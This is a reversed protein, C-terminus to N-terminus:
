RRRRIGICFPHGAPDLMVVLGQDRHPQYDPTSAGHEHLYAEAEALDDVDFDMHIQMPVDSSPWTPPQYRDVARIALITGAISVYAGSHDLNSIEGGGLASYFRAVPGPDDCDLVLCALDIAVWPVSSILRRQLAQSKMQEFM